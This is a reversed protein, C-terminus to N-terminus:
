WRPEGFYFKHDFNTIQKHEEALHIIETNSIDPMDDISSAHGREVLVQECFTKFDHSSWKHALYRGSEFMFKEQIKPQTRTLTPHGYKARPCLKVEIGAIKARWSFDVDEVYMFFTEDMLGIKEFVLRPILLCCGSAWDTEFSIPDYKKLHEEPFQIAEIIAKPHKQNFRTLEVFFDPHFVGDPNACLFYQYDVEELFQRILVNIASSYGVNGQFPMSILKLASDFHYTENSNDIHLVRIKVQQQSKKMNDLAVLLSNQWRDIEEQSNNYTVLGIALKM